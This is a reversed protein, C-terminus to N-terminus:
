KKHTKAACEPCLGILVYNADHLEFGEPLKVEPIPLGRLCFTRHCRECSFHTHLGELCTSDHEGCHCTPPCLAYKNQGSGDCVSHVLHHSQFLNLTRFITSKDVTGLQAELDTLSLTCQANEMARLILLRIATPKIERDALLKELHTM